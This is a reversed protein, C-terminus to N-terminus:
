ATIFDLTLSDVFVDGCDQRLTPVLEDALDDFGDSAVGLQTVLALAEATMFNQDVEFAYDFGLEEGVIRHDQAYGAIEHRLAKPGEDALQELLDTFIATREPGTISGDPADLAALTRCHSPAGSPLAALLGQTSASAGATAGAAAGDDGTGPDAVSGAGQGGNVVVAGGRLPDAAAGTCAALVFGALLLVIVARRLIPQTAHGTNRGANSM